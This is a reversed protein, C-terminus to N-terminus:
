RAKMVVGSRIKLLVLRGGDEGSVEVVLRKGRPVTFPRFGVAYNSSDVGGLVPVPETYLPELPEEQSARRKVQKRDELYYRIVTPQFPIRTRNDLKLTLWELSDALYIGKLKLVLGFTRVRKKLFGKREDLQTAMRRLEVADAPLASLRLLTGTDRGASGMLVSIRYNLVATDTAFRVNFSYVRGDMGYVSLNTEAMGERGAKLELVNNVGRVKQAILDRSVKVAVLIAEPFILNTMKNLSVPISVSGIGEVRFGAQQAFGVAGTLLLVRIYMGRKM